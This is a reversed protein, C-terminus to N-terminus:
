LSFSDIIKIIQKVEDLDIGNYLSIRLPEKLNISDYSFPTQTRLGVLNNENCHQLFKVMTEKNGNDVLFPININSRSNENKVTSNFIKSKDLFDYVIKAKSQSYKELNDITKMKDIYNDLIYNLLYLNFVAPTNYLSNSQYYNNWDLTCPINNKFNLKNLIDKKIILINAGPAGMNKSTCAFAIDINEWNIKKMLFDSSMDVVLKTKGLQKRDPYCIYDNKFETGNVTENSCIYLYDADNSINIKEPLKDYQLSYKFESYFSEGINKSNIFKKSENFARESWTGSVLYDAKLDPFITKLNLPIASFQGHGGGQTWILEFDDPIDMFNRLKINLNELISNFEPSRHSMELATSGHKKSKKSLDYSVIELIESSIPAPGPSVNILSYDLNYKKISYGTYLKSYHQLKKVPFFQKM